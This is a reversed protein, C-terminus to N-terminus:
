MWQNCLSPATSVTRAARPEGDLRHTRDLCDVRDTTRRRHPPGHAGHKRRLTGHAASSPESHLRGHQHSATTTTSSRSKKPLCYCPGYRYRSLLLSTSQTNVTYRSTSCRSLPSGVADFSHLCRAAPCRGLRRTHQPPSVLPPSLGRLRHLLPRGPPAAVGHGCGQTHTHLPRPPATLTAGPGVGGRDSDAM